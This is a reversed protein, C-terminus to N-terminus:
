KILEGNNNYKEIRELKGSKDYYRLDGVAKGNKFSGEIRKNGNNYYDIKSGNCKQDCCFWGKFSPKKDITFGYYIDVKKLTDKIIGFKDIHIITNNEVEALILKYYGTDNLVIYPKDLSAM